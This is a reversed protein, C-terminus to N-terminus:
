GLSRIDPLVTGLKIPTPQNVVVGMAGGDQDYDLLLVVTQSFGPDGIQRAAVLLKGRAPKGGPPAPAGARQTGGGRGAAALGWAMVRAVREAKTGSGTRTTRPSAACLSVPVSVVCARKVMGTLIGGKSGIAATRIGQVTADGACTVFRGAPRLSSASSRTMRG